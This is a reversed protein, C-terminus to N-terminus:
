RRDESTQEIIGIGGAPLDSLDIAWAGETRTIPAAVEVREGQANWILLVPKDAHPWTYQGAVCTIIREEGEIWGAHLGVPTIPFCHAMLEFVDTEDPKLGLYACYHYTLGGLKLRQTIQDVLTAPDKQEADSFNTWMNCLGIPSWLHTGPVNYTGEVFGMVPKSQLEESTSSQNCAVIGGKDIIKQVMQAQAPGMLIPVNNKTRVLTHDKPDIDVSHGDWRDYSVAGPVTFIDFYVGGFGCEDMLYDVDKMLRQHYANDLAPYAFLYVSKPDPCSEGRHEYSGDAKKAFSDAEPLKSWDADKAATFFTIERGAVLKM